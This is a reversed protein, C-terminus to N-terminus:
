IYTIQFIRKKGDKKHIYLMIKEYKTFVNIIKFIFVRFQVKYSNYLLFLFILIMISLLNISIENNKDKYTNYSTKIQFISINCDVNTYVIKSIENASHENKNQENKFPVDYIFCSFFVILVIIISIFKINHITMKLM